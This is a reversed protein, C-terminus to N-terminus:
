RAEHGRVRAALDVMVNFGWRQRYELLTECFGNGGCVGRAAGERLVVYPSLLVEVAVRPVDFGFGLGGELRLEHREVFLVKSPIFPPADLPPGVVPELNVGHRRRGASAGLNALLLLEGLKVSNEALLRGGYPIRLLGPKLYGVQGDVGLHAAFRSEPPTLRYRVGAGGGLWGAYAGLDWAPSLAARAGLVQTFALSPNLPTVGQASDGNGHLTHVAGDRDVVRATGAGYSTGWGARLAVEKPALPPGIPVHPTIMCGAALVGVALAFAVSATRVFQAISGEGTVGDGM